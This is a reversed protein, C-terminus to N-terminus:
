YNVLGLFSRLESKNTPTRAEAMAQQKTPTTHSGNTDIVNGLYEVLAKLFHCKEKKLRFGKDQLWELVRSLHNLHEEASKGTIIIDDLYCRVEPLGNLLQDM